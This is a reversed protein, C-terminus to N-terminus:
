KCFSQRAPLGQLGAERSKCGIGKHELPMWALPPVIMNSRATSYSLGGPPASVDEFYLFYLLDRLALDGSRGEGSRNKKPSREERKCLLGSVDRPIGEM